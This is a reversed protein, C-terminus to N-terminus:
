LGEKITRLIQNGVETRINLSSIKNNARTPYVRNSLFVYVMDYMPDIWTFTGTYGSHGYSLDSAEQPGNAINKDPHLKDFAIARRNVVPDFQYRTCESVVEPKIFEQGGYSGNQLYMQMLKMLDNANGFLGAHGSIGNLMGAGEDHVRGHIQTKRFLTDQETPVIQHLPYFRRPNYTLSNAGIAKYTDKLYEEWPKGTIQPVFDPYFYYHMDSYVYGQEPKVPSEIIQNFITSKYDKNIWLSDAVQVSFQETPTTSFIGPKWTLTEPHLLELWLDNNRRVSGLYDIKKDPRKRFIRQFFSLKPQPFYEFEELLYPKEILGKNITSLTDICEMWFPIWAKLGSRHTLMDRFTLNAKNTGKTEPVYDAFTKDLDFKGESMLQMVALASTSIKTVSAMDYLDTLQVAGEMKVAEPNGIANITGVQSDPEFPNHNDMVDKNGKEFEETTANSRYGGREADEYTHYGYARRYIVRGNKAVQFAAGPYAKEELGYNIVSDIRSRLTEGDLGVQEPVGYALRDLTEPHLGFGAKYNENVTVPLTGEFPIAGFIAQTAAEETYSTLQNAMVISKAKGLDEIKNISFPNGFIVVTSNPNELLASLAFQNQPTVGYNSYPRISQLHLGIVLHDYDKTRNHILQVLNDSANVPLNFFDIATYNEAMKQFDSTGANDISVFAIKSQLDKIPLQSGENKLLTLTKEAFERNLYDSKITNLDEILNEVKTSRYHDLGVWSKAKLIKLVRENIIEETLEGSELAAKIAKVATPVDVFTELVDNGAIIAQVLAKGDPFHKTIGQMDMADTFTLGEFGLDEKLLSTIIKPSLTAALNPTDDLVPISLHATMIGTLGNDIMAKFPMLEISDLRARSHPIVPLDYHSDVGTDGHGPFHKATAIIHQRQLGNMYALAKRAVMQPDEGFSRFNIVPNQPNVNVDAVPGYMVHVGLRQCQQGIEAGMQEILEIHGTMAGLAMQYPFRVTSDLRMALGWEFDMGILLPVESISQLENIIGAQVSPQGAFMALGGIHYEKVWEKLKEPEYGQGSFNGRPMLLQGIKQDVSLSNFVSDVWQHNYDKLFAPQQAFLNLSLTTSFLVILAKKFM